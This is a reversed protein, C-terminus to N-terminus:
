KQVVRLRVMFGHYDVGAWNLVALSGDFANFQEVKGGFFGATQQAHYATIFSQLLDQAAAYGEHVGEGQGIPKVFVRVLYVVDIRPMGIAQQSGAFSDVTTLVLPLSATNIAAPVETPASTIGTVGANVTQISAIVEAFSYIM